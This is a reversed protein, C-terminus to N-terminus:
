RLLNFSNSSSFSDVCMHILIETIFYYDFYIGSDGKEKPTPFLYYHTFTKRITTVRHSVSGQSYKLKIQITWKNVHEVMCHREWKTCKNLCKWDAVDHMVLESTTCWLDTRNSHFHCLMSLKIIQRESNHNEKGQHAHEDASLEVRFHNMEKEALAVLNSFNIM